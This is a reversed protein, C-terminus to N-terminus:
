PKLRPDAGACIYMDPLQAEPHRQQFEQLADQLQSAWAPERQQQRRSQSADQLDTWDANQEVHLAAAQQQAALSSQHQLLATRLAQLTVCSDLLCRAARHLVNTAINATRFAKLRTISYVHGVQMTEPM